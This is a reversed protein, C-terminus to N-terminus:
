LSLHLPLHGVEAIKNPNPNPNSRFGVEAIKNAVERQMGAGHVDLGKLGAYFLLHERVTLSDYLVNHQPCIGLSRRISSMQKVVSLGRVTADGATPVILGTLMSITTTKGAGNHGLLAYIQGEYLETTLGQVAVKNPQGDPSPFEKRLGHLVVSRSRAHQSLLEPGM